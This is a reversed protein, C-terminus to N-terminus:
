VARRGCRCENRFDTLLLRAGGDNHPELARDGITLGPQVLPDLRVQGPEGRDLDALVALEAERVHGVPDAGVKRGPRQEARVVHRRHQRHPPRRHEVESPAQM